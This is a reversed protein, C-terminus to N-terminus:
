FLGLIVWIVACSFTLRFYFVKESVAVKSVVEKPSDSLSGSGMLNRELIRSIMPLDSFSIFASLPDLDVNVNISNLDKSIIHTDVTIISNFPEVLKVSLNEKLNMATLLFTMNQFIVTTIADVVLSIKESKMIIAESDTKYVTDLMLVESENIHFEYTVVYPSSSYETTTLHPSIWPKSFFDSVQYIFALDLLLTVGDWQVVYKSSGIRPADYTISIQDHDLNRSSIVEQFLLRSSIRNYLVPTQIFISAHSSTDTLYSYNIRTNGLLIEFLLQRDSGSGVACLSIDGFSLKISDTAYIPLNSDSKRIKINSDTSSEKTVQPDSSTMFQYIEVLFDYQEQDVVLKIDDVDASICNTTGELGVSSFVRVSLNFKEVINQQYNLSINQCCVKIDQITLYLDDSDIDNRLVTRGPYLYLWFDHSTTNGSFFRGPMVIIPTECQITYSFRDSQNKIATASEIASRRANEMLSYMSTFKTLYTLFRTNFSPNYFLRTSSALLTLASDFGGNESIESLLSFDILQDAEVKLFESYSKDLGSSDNITFKGIKGNIKQVRSSREVALYMTDFNAAAFCSQDVFQIIMRNMIFNMKSNAAKKVSVIVEEPETTLSTASDELIDLFFNYVKLIPEATLKCTLSEVQLCLNSDEGAYNPSNRGFARYNMSLIAEDSKSEDAKSVILDVKSIGNTMQINSIRCDFTSDQIFTISEISVDTIILESLINSESGYNQSILTISAEAISFTFLTNIQNWDIVKREPSSAVSELYERADEFNETLSDSDQFNELPFSEEIKSIQPPEYSSLVVSSASDFAKIANSLIKKVVIYKADMLNM